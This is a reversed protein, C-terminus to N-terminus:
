GGIAIGACVLGIAGLLILGNLISGLLGCVLSRDPQCCGIIGLVLGILTFGLSLLIGLGVAVMAPDKEPPQPNNPDDVVAALIFLAPVAVFMLVAIGISALGLGSLPKPGSSERRRGRDLRLDDYDDDDYDDYRPM